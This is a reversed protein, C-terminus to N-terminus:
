RHEHPHTKRLSWGFTWRPQMILGLLLALPLIHVWWLGPLIEVRGQDVWSKAINLLNYYIAFVLVATLLKAFRGQRPPTRSLPVGMLGLLLTVVPMSLRWQFEAIDGPSTSQSLRMSPEAKRKYGRNTPDAGALHLILTKFKLTLDQGGKRDLAYGYGNKFIMNPNADLGASPLYAERAYIVRTSTGSLRRLFVGEMRKLKRDIREAFLVENTKGLKYFRGAELRSIDLEALAQAELNYIMRYAWPRTHLSLVGVLVAVLLSLQLVPRLIRLESVCSANLATMEADTYLRGLGVVVALYLSSPLLVDLTILTKLLILQGVTALPLLGQAADALYAASSFAAFIVLLVACTM